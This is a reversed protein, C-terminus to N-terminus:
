GNPENLIAHITGRARDADVRIRIVSEVVGTDEDATINPVADGEPGENTGALHM